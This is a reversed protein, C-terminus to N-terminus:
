VFMFLMAYRAGKALFVLLLFYRFDYKLVGAVLTIADGILPVWSFLLAWGGFRGFIADARELSRQDLYKKQLLFDVGKRGLVYNVVSGLTNGTTAALLLSLPSYGLSLDYLFLM